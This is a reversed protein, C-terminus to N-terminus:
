SFRDRTYNNPNHAYPNYVNVKHTNLCYRLADVAHDGSKVPADEGQNSKKTDWVYGEIERILNTCEKCIFLNGKAMESTMVQIGNTVDNDAPIIHLGKRQLELKMAAASPDIYIGRVAY